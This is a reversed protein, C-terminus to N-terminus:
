PQGKQACQQLRKEQEIDAEFEAREVAAVNPTM